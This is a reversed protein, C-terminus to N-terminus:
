AHRLECWYHIRKEDYDILQLSTRVPMNVLLERKFQVHTEAM